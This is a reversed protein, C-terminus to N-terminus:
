AQSRKLIMLTMDDSFPEEERFTDVALLVADVIESARKTKNAKLVEIFREDGFQDRKSNMCETVGDSYLAVLDGPTVRQEHTEYETDPLIGLPVGSAELTEIEGGTRVLYPPNHGANTYVIRDTNPEVLLYCVSVFRGEGLRDMLDINIQRLLEDPAELGPAKSRLVAQLNSMLIAAGIGKGAVDAIALGFGRGVALVDFYDGGVETSPRNFCALDYGEIAPIEKPFLHQQIGRAIEMETDMREKERAIEGLLTNEIKEAIMGSLSSFFLLDTEGFQRDFKTTDVYLVGLTREGNWLPTCIASRIRLNAVSESMKLNEDGAVDKILVAQNEAIARTAISMSIAFKGASRIRSLYARPALKGARDLLMIAARDAGTKEVCARLISDLLSELPRAQVIERAIDAVAQLLVLPAMVQSVEAPRALSVTSSPKEAARERQFSVSETPEFVIRSSGVAITAGPALETPQFIRKGDLFTGNTSGADRVFYKHDSQFIEAHHRSVVPEEILIESEPLRGIRLLPKESSLLKEEGTGLAIFFSAM